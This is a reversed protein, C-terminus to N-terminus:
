PTITGHMLHPIGVTNQIGQVWQAKGQDPEVPPLKSLDNSM